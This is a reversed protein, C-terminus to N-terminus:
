PAGHVPCRWGKTVVCGCDLTQTDPSQEHEIREPPSAVLDRVLQPAAAIFAANSPDVYRAVVDGSVGDARHVTGAGARYRWEGPTIDKLLKEAQEILAASTEQTM